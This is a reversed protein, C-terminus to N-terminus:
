SRALLTANAVWGPKGLGDVLPPDTKRYLKPFEFMLDVEGRQSQIRLRLDMRFEVGSGDDRWLLACSGPALHKVGVDVDRSNGLDGWEFGVQFLVADIPSTSDNILYFSWSAGDTGAERCAVVRWQIADTM